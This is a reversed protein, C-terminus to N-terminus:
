LLSKMSQKLLLLANLWTVNLLKNANITFILHIPTVRSKEIAVTIEMSKSKLSSESKDNLNKHRPPNRVFLCRFEPCAIM